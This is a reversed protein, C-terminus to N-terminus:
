IRSPCWCSPTRICARRGSRLKCILRRTLTVQSVAFGLPACVIGTTGRGAQAALALRQCDQRYEENRRLYEWAFGPAALPWIYGYASHHWWEIDLM